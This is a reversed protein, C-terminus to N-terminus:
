PNQTPQLHSGSLEYHDSREVYRSLLARAKDAIVPTEYNGGAFAKVAELSDFWLMTMFEVESGGDLRLLHYGRYDKGSLEREVRPFLEHKLCDDYAGSDSVM